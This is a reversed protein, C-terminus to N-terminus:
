GSVVDRTKDRSVLLGGLGYIIYEKYDYGTEQLAEACAQEVEAIEEVTSIDAVVIKDRKPDMM